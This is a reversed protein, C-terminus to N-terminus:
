RPFRAAPAAVDDLAEALRTRVWVEDVRRQSAATQARTPGQWFVTWSLGYEVEWLVLPSPEAMPLTLRVKGELATRLRTVSLRGSDVERLTAVIKRVMGWVFSPARIEVLSRDELPRVTVSEIIRWAPEGAPISRGLSRVDVKGEFLRAAEAVRSPNRRRTPDFYRYTRSVAGRVRFDDTIPTAATFVLDPDIGNLTRLLTAGPLASRLALVNARASVGRDTRSAVEM